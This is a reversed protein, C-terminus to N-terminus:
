PELVVKSTTAATSCRHRPPRMGSPAYTSSSANVSRPWDPMGTAPPRMTPILMLATAPQLEEHSGVVAEINRVGLKISTLGHPGVTADERTTGIAHVVLQHEALRTLSTRRSRVTRTGATARTVMHHMSAYNRYQLTNDINQYGEPKATADKALAVADAWPLRKNIARRAKIPCEQLKV